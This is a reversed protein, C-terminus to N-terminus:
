LLSHHLRDYRRNVPPALFHLKVYNNVMTRTMIQKGDHSLYPGLWQDLLLLVQDLYQPISPLEEWRPVRFNDAGKTKM